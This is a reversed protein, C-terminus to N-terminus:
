LTSVVQGIPYAEAVGTVRFMVWCCTGSSSHFILRIKSHQIYWVYLVASSTLSDDENVNTCNLCITFLPTLKSAHVKLYVLLDIFEVILTCHCLSFLM